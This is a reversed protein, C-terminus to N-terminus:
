ASREATKKDDAPAPEEIMMHKLGMRCYGYGTILTILAALWLLVAGVADPTADPHGLAPGAAGVLLFGIATVQIGTKWKALRSVPVGVRIEALFERLGSVLIERCLIVIAPLVPARDLWVLMIIAAAILLKDAIPDLFRGLASTQGLWRAAMGDFYDTLAAAVFLGFATWHGWSGPLYFVAIFVPIVAIRSLTLLNPLSTLM